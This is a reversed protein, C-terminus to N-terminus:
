SAPWRRGARSPTTTRDRRLQRDAGVDDHRDARRLVPRDAGGPLWDHEHQLRGRRQDRRRRRGIHRSVLHRRGTGVSRENRHAESSRHPWARARARRFRSGDDGLPQVGGDGAPHPAHGAVFRAAVDAHDGDATRRSVGHRRVPAVRDGARRHDGGARAARHLGAQRGRDGHAARREARRPARRVQLGRARDHRPRRAVAHRAAGAAHPGRVRGDVRVQAGPPTSRIVLRGPPLKTAQRTEVPAVPRAAGRRRRRQPRHGRRERRGAVASQARRHGRAGRCARGRTAPASAATSATPAQAPTEITRFATWYGWGFGAAVGVLLAMVLPVFTTRPRTSARPPVLSPAPWERATASEADRTRAGSLLTPEAAATEGVTPVDM